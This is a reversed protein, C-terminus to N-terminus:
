ETPLERIKQWCSKKILEASLEAHKPPMPLEKYNSALRLAINNKTIVNVSYAVLGGGGPPPPPFSDDCNDCFRDGTGTDYLFQHCNGCGPETGLCGPCMTMAARATTVKIPKVGHFGGFGTAIAIGVLVSFIIGIRKLNVM